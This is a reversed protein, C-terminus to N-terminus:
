RPPGRGHTAWGSASSGRSGSGQSSSARGQGWGSSGSPGGGRRPGDRAGPGAGPPRSAPSASRWRARSCPEDRGGPQDSGAARAVHRFDDSLDASRSFPRTWRATGAGSRAGPQDRRLALGGPSPGGLLLMSGAVAAALARPRWGTWRRLAYALALVALGCGLIVAFYWVAIAQLWFVALLAILDRSAAGRPLPRAPVRRAAARVADGDPVRRGYELRPPALTFVLMGVAAAAHRRTIGYGVAYMAWGSAAWFFLLTLNYALYPNGSM